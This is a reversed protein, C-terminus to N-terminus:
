AGPDGAFWDARRDGEARADVWLSSVDGIHQVLSPSPAWVPMGRRQAWRGVVVDIHALGDSRGTWRHDFVQRDMLFDRAMENSFVFALAGWGWFETVAHWGPRRRTYASPCYLSVVGQGGACLDPWLVEQELYPRLPEGEYFLSDDQVIM